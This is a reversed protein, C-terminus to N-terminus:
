SAKKKLLFDRDIMEKVVDEKIEEPGAAEEGAARVVEGSASTTRNRGGEKSQYLAQDAAKILLSREKANEPYTSVGVSITVKHAQGKPDKFEHQEIAQRLREALAYAGKKDTEPLIVSFEEGGYRCCIDIERVSKKMLRAVEALVFDGIQHGYADNFKKFHDIDTIIVSTKHKYRDSRRIESQLKQQFYRHIFLKTLGDTVALEYLQANNIAVAAQDALTTMLEVDAQTFKKGDKKNTMNVVGIVVGNLILPLCLISNVRSTGSYKFEKSLAAEDLMMPKGTQLVKGAVGEGSKIRTTQIEGSAIKEETVPDLGRVVRVVLENTAEDLLMLSGKECHTVEIAKDLILKLLKTLDNIFNMAKGVNFLISLNFMQRDLEKSTKEMKEYLTASEFAVAAQGSLLRLFEMENESFPRGSRKESLALIGTVRGKTKLPVWLVSKLRDLKESRFIKEFRLKGEHDVVYFPAGNVIIEWFLGEKQHFVFGETLEKELGESSTLRFLNEKEDYLFIACHPVDLKETVIAVFTDSLKQVNLLSTLAKSAQSVAFLDFMQDDLDRSTNILKEVQKKLGENEDLIKKQEEERMAMPRPMAKMEPESKKTKKM